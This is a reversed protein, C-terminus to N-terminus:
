KSDEEAKTIRQAERPNVLLDVPRGDVYRRFCCGSEMWLDRRSLGPMKMAQRVKVAEGDPIAELYARVKEQPSENEVSDLPITKM